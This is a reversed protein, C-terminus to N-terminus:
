TYRIYVHIYIYIHIFTYTYIHICVLYSAYTYMYIYIHSVNMHRYSYIFIYIYIYIFICMGTYLCVCTHAGGSISSYVGCLVCLNLYLGQQLNVVVSKFLTSAEGSSLLRGGTSCSLTDVQPAIICASNNPFFAVDQLSLHLDEPQALICTEKNLVVASKKHFLMCTKKDLM